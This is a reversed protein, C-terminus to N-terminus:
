RRFREEEQYKRHELEKIKRFILERQPVDITLNTTLRDRWAALEKETRTMNKKTKAAM